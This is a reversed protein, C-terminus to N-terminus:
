QVLKRDLDYGAFTKTFVIQPHKAMLEEEQAAKLLIQFNESRLHRDADDKSSYTEFLYLAAEASPDVSETVIFRVTRDENKHTAAAHGALLEKVRNMKSPAPYLIAFINIEQPTSQVSAM